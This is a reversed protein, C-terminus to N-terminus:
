AMCISSEDMGRNAKQEVAFGKRPIVDSLHRYPLCTGAWLHVQIYPRQVASGRDM